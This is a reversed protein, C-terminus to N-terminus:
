RAVAEDQPAANQALLRELKRELVVPDFPTVLYDKVGATYARQVDALDASTSFVLIPIRSTAQDNSLRNALEVGTAGSVAVDLIIVDPRSDAITSLATDVGDARDVQYGLLELRFATIEALTPEDGILLIRPIENRMRFLLDIGAWTLPACRRVAAIGQGFIRGFATRGPHDGPGAFEALKRDGRAVGREVVPESPVVPM